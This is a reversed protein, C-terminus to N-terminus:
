PSRVFGVWLPWRYIRCAAFTSDRRFRRYGEIASHVRRADRRCSSAFWILTRREARITNTTVALKSAAPLAAACWLKLSYSWVLVISTVPFSSSTAQCFGCTCKVSSAGSALPRVCVQSMSPADSLIRRRVSAVGSFRFTPSVTVNAPLGDFRDGVRSDPVFTSVAAPLSSTSSGPFLGCQCVVAVPSFVV